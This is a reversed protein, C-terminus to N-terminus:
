FSSGAIEPRRVSSGIPHVESAASTVAAGMGKKAEVIVHVDTSVIEIDTIGALGEDREHRQLAINASEATSEPVGCEALLLKFLAPSERLAWGIAFTM